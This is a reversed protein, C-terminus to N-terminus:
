LELVLKQGIRLTSTKHISNTKCIANIYVNNRKSIRSLTDGSKVIYVKKTKVLSALAEEKTKYLKLKSQRRANHFSARTWEKTVWIQNARIKNENSFDFIYEPHIYHGKYSTVLHLHSGTSRGTNGGKGIFQGKSLTDNLKVYIKSLHAYATELGNYHRVVVVNGHGRSYRAFRVIGDLMSAVSDGTILDIDIGKHSRGNRWGYRSTIVKEKKIPSAFTTDEFKIEIPFKAIENRYPNFNVTDWFESKIDINNEKSDLNIIPIIVEQPKTGKKLTPNLIIKLYDEPLTQSHSLTSALFLIYLALIQKMKFFEIVFM